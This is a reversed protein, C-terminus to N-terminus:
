CLGYKWIESITDTYFKSCRMKPWNRKIKLEFIMINQDLFFSDLDSQTKGDCGIVEQELCAILLCTEHLNM